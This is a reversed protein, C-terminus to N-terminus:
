RDWLAPLLGFPNWWCLSDRRCSACGCPSAPVMKVEYKPVREVTEEGDAKYFRKKVFVNGCPPCCRCEPSAAHWPDRGRACAYECKMTYKPKKTKKEEWTASCAPVCHRCSGAATCGCPGDTPEAARSAALCAILAFCACTIRTTRQM